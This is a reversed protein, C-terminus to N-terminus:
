AVADCFAMEWGHFVVALGVFRVAPFQRALRQDALYRELQATAIEGLKIRQLHSPIDLAGRLKPGFPEM